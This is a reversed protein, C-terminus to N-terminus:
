ALVQLLLLFTQINFTVKSLINDFGINFILLKSYIDLIDSWIYYDLNRIVLIYLNLHFDVNVGKIVKDLIKSKFVM